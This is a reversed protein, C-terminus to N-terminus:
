ILWVNLCHRLDVEHPLLMIHEAKKDLEDIKSPLEKKEKKYAGNQNKWGRLYKRLSRIKNQWIEMSTSGKRKKQWIDTVMDYFGDKLLWGLEIAFTISRFYNKTPCKSNGIPIKVGM